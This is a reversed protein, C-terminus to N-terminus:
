ARRWRGDSAGRDVSWTEESRSPVVTDFWFTEDPGWGALLSAGGDGLDVVRGATTLYGAVTLHVGVAEDAVAAWDPQVWDGVRGTTMEWVYRRSATVVLPHRRCLRAWAEPGDIEIVEGEPVRVPQVRATEWGFSDEVLTLGLPEGGRRARTSRPLDQPPTSWWVGSVDQGAYETAFQTEEAEMSARWRSLRARLPEESSRKSEWFVCAQAARAVPETWWSISPDRSVSEAVPELAALVEETTVLVDEGSPPQWYAALDVAVALATDLVAPDIHPRVAGLAIAAEAPSVEPEVCSTADGAFAIVTGRYEDFPRAAWSVAWAARQVAPGDGQALLVELCLRRGRPGALLASPDLTM